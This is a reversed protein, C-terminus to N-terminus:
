PRGSREGKLVAFQLNPYGAMGATKIVQNITEFSHAKDCLFLVHRPQEEQGGAAGRDAGERCARLRRYLESTRLDASDLGAIRQGAVEGLVEGDLQLSQRSLVLRVSDAYDARATSKPLEMGSDLRIQEPRTSFNVLLFIMIITFMDMMSTLQLRAEPGTRRHRRVKGLAM